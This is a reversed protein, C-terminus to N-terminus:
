SSQYKDIPLLAFINIKIELMRRSLLDTGHVSISFTFFSRGASNEALSSFLKEMDTQLLIYLFFPLRLMNNDFDLGVLLLCNYKRVSLM